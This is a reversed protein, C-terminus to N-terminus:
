AMLATGGSSRKRDFASSTLGVLLLLEDRTLVQMPSRQNTGAYPKTIDIPTEIM